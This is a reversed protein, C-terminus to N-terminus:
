IQYIIEPIYYKPVCKLRGEIVERNKKKELM